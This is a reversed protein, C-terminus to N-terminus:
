AWAWALFVKGGSAKMQVPAKGRIEPNKHTMQSKDVKKLGTTVDGGKNLAAFLGGAPAAAKKPAAAAPAKAAPAAAAAAPATKPADGGKANWSCGTTHYEKVYAALDNLVQVWARAWEVQGKDSEKFDKIVRNTYFQAAGVMDKVYPVPKPEMQVWGLAPIGEAVGSLHNFQESRRNADKFEGIEGLKAATPGLLTGFTAADPKKCTSVTVIFERQAAFAAAAMAAVAAVDGGCANSKDMFAKFSGNIIEDYGDVSAANDVDGGGGGGVKELRDAVKPLVSFSLLNSPPPSARLARTHTITTTTTTTRLPTSLTLVTAM